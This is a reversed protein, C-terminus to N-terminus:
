DHKGDAQPVWLYGVRFVFFVMSMVLTVANTPQLKWGDAASNASALRVCAGVQLCDGIMLVQTLPVLLARQQSILMRLLAAAIILTLVGSWSYVELVAPEAVLAGEPPRSLTTKIWAAPTLLQSV